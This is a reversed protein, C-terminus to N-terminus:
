STLKLQDLEPLMQKGFFLSKLLTCLFDTDTLFYGIYPVHINLIPRFIGFLFIVSIHFTM